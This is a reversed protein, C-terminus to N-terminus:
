VALEDWHVLEVVGHNVVAGGMRGPEDAEESSFLLRRGALVCPSACARGECSTSPSARALAQLHAPETGRLFHM